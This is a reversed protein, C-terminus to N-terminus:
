SDFRSRKRHPSSDRDRDRDRDRGHSHGRSHGHSHHHQEADVSSRISGILQSVSSSSSGRGGGGGGNNNRSGGGGGRPPPPPPAASPPADTGRLIDQLSAVFDPSYFQRTAWIDLVKAIKDIEDPRLGRRCLAMLGPLMSRLADTCEDHHAPERAGHRLIENMMYVFSLKKEFDHTDEMEFRLMEFIQTARNARAYVWDCVGMISDKKPTLDRLMACLAASEDRTLIACNSPPATAAAAAISPSPGRQQQQM